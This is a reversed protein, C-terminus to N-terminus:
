SRREASASEPEAAAAAPPAVPDAPTAAPAPPAVPEAAAAPTLAPREDVEDPKSEGTIGEKFERLGQGLAKGLMPLRKPGFILLAVVVVVILDTVPNRFM